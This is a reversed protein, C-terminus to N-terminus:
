RTSRDRRRRQWSSKCWCMQRRGHDPRNGTDWPLDRRRTRKSERDHCSGDTRSCSTRDCREGTKRYALNGWVRQLLPIRRRVWCGHRGAVRHHRRIQQLIDSGPRQRCPLTYVGYTQESGRRSHHRLISKESIKYRNRATGYGHKSSWRNHQIEWIRNSEPRERRSHNSSCSRGPRSSRCNCRSGNNEYHFVEM